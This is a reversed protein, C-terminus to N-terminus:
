QRVESLRVAPAKLRYVLFRSNEYAVQLRDDPTEAVELFPPVQLGYRDYVLYDAHTEELLAAIRAPTNAVAYSRDWYIIGDWGAAELAQKDPAAVLEMRRRWECIGSKRNPPFTKFDVYQSRRAYYRFEELGPPTIFLADATTQGRVWNFLAKKETEPSTGLKAAWITHVGAAVGLVLMGAIAAQRWRTSEVLRMVLTVAFLLGLLLSWQVQAFLLFFFTLGLSMLFFRVGSRKEEATAGDFVSVLAFAALTLLLPSTRSLHAQFPWGANSLWEAPVAGGHAVIAGTFLLLLGVCLGALDRRTAQEDQGKAPLLFSLFGGALLLMMLSLHFPTEWRIRFEQPARFLFGEKAINCVAQEPLTTLSERALTVLLPSAIVASTLGIWILPRVGARGRFLSAALLALAGHLAVVPHACATLGLLVGTGITSRRLFREFTWLLLCLALWQMHFQDGFAGGFEGRGIGVARGAFILAAAMPFLWGAGGIARYIRWAAAVTAISLLLTLVFLGPVLGVTKELVFVLPPWVPVHLLFGRLLVDKAFLSPDLQALALPLYCFDDVSPVGAYGGASRLVFAVALIIVAPSPSGSRTWAFRLM